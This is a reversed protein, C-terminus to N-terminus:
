WIISVEHSMRHFWYYCLDVLIFCLVWNLASNISLEFIRTHNYLYIYGTFIVTRLFVDLIQQSIGCSLDNVSDNFRYFEKKRIVAFLIEIGILLFFFPIAIEIYNVKM